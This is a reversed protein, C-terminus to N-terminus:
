KSKKLVALLNEGPTNQYNFNKVNERGDKIGKKTAELLAKLKEPIIKLNIGNKEIYNHNKM